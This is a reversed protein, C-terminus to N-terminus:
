VQGCAFCQAPSGNQQKKEGSKRNMDVKGTKRALEYNHVLEGARTCTKSKGERVRVRVEEGMSNLLQETRVVELVEQVTTLRGDM